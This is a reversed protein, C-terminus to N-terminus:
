LSEKYKNTQQLEEKKRLQLEEQLAEKLEILEERSMENSMIIRLLEDYSRSM